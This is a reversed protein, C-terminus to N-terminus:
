EGLMGEKWRIVFDYLEVKGAAQKRKNAAMKGVNVKNENDFANRDNVPTMKM